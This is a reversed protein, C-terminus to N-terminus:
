ACRPAPDKGASAVDGAIRDTAPRPAAAACGESPPVGIPGASCLPLSHNVYSPSDSYRCASASYSIGPGPTSCNHLGLTPDNYALVSVSGDVRLHKTKKSKKTIMKGTASASINGPAGSTPIVSSYSYSFTGKRMKINTYNATGYANSGTPATATGIPPDCSVGVTASYIAQRPTYPGHREKNKYFVAVQIRLQPLFGGQFDYRRTAAQAAPVVLVAGLLSVLAISLPRKM